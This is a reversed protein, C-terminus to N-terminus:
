DEQAWGRIVKVQGRTQPSEMVRLYDDHKRLEAIRTLAQDPTLGHRVMWCGIITGTRGHGGWCHVYVGRGSAHAEDIRDLAERYTRSDTVGMDKIPFRHFVPEVGSGRSLCRVIPRYDPFPKYGFGTETFEQLNLFVSVGGDLISQLNREATREDVDGPYPGSLLRDTVWWTHPFPQRRTPYPIPM